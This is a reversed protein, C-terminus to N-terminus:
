PTVYDSAGTTNSGGLDIVMAPSIHPKWFSILLSLKRMVAVPLAAQLGYYTLSTSSIATMSSSSSM